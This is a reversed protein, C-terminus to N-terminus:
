EKLCIGSTEIAALYQVIRISSKGVSQSIQLYESSIVGLNRQLPLTTWNKQDQISM